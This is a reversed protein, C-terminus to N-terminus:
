QNRRDKAQRRDQDARRDLNSRREMGSRREPIHKAYSFSRRDIGSRRDGKDSVIDVHTSSM